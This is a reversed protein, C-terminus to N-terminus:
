DKIQLDPDRAIDWLHCDKIIQLGAIRPLRSQGAKSIPGMRAPAETLPIIREILPAATATEERGSSPGLAVVSRARM